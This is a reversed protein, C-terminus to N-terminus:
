PPRGAATSSTGVRLAASAVFNASGTACVGPCRRCRPSAEKPCACRRDLYGLAAAMAASVM